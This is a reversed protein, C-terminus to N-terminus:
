VTSRTRHHGSSGTTSTSTIKLVQFVPPRDFVGGSQSSSQIQVSQVEAAGGATGAQAEASGVIQAEADPESMIFVGAEDLFRVVDRLQTMTDDTFPVGEHHARVM